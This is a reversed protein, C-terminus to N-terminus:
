SKAALKAIASKIQGEFGRVVEKQLVSNVKRSVKKSVGAAFPSLTKMRSLASRGEEGKDKTPVFGKGTYQGRGFVHTDSGIKTQGKRKGGKYHATKGRTALFVHPIKTTEGKKIQVEIGEKTELISSKFGVLPIPAANIKIGSELFNSRATPSNFAMKKLYKPEINYNAKIEKKLVGSIADKCARNMAGAMAKGIESKGLKKEVDKMVKTINKDAKISISIM